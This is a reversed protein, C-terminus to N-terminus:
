GPITLRRSILRMRTTKETQCWTNLFRVRSASSYITTPLWQHQHWEYNLFLIWCIVLLNVSTETKHHMIKCKCIWKAQFWVSFYPTEEKSCVSDVELLWVIFLKIKATTIVPIERYMRQIIPSDWWNCGSSLRTNCFFDASQACVLLNQQMSTFGILVFIGRQSPVPHM